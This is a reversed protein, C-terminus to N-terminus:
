QVRKTQSLGNTHQGRCDVLLSGLCFEVALLQLVSIHYTTEAESWLGHTSFTGSAAGWGRLSADSALSFDPVGYDISRDALPLPEVWWNLNRMNEPSLSMFGEFEGLFDRLAIDKDRVLRVCPGLEVGPFTSVLTGILSAVHRVIQQRSFLPM